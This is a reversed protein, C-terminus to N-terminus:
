EDKNIRSKLTANGADPDILYNNKVLTVTQVGSPPNPKRIGM